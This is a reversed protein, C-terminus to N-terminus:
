SPYFEVFNDGVSKGTEEAYLSIFVQRLQLGRTARRVWDDGAYGPHHVHKALVRGDPLRPMNAPAEDWRFALFRKRKPYIDHPKTGPPLTFFIYRYPKAVEIGYKVSRTSEDLKKVFFHEKAVKGPAERQLRPLVYDRMIRYAVSRSKRNIATLVADTDSVRQRIFRFNFLDRQPM